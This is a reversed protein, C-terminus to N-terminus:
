IATGMRADIVDIQERKVLDRLRQLMPFAAMAASLGSYLGPKTVFLPRPGELLTVPIDIDRYAQLMIEVEPRVQDAIAALHVICYTIRGRDVARAFAYTRSEDGGFALSSIISVVRLPRTRM